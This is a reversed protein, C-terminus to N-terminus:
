AATRAAPMARALHLRAATLLEQCARYTPSRELDARAGSVLECRREGYTALGLEVLARVLRACLAPRRPYRGAGRLLMRLDEDSACGAARLTRYVETLSPRLDLEAQALALAFAVEQEGWALHAFGAAPAAHLLAVWAAAPPPDLAVLHGFPKALAPDAVLAPWAVLAAGHPGLVRDLAERRRPVDGCVVLVGEGSSLLDAAVGAFGEGRRDRLERCPAAAPSEWGREPEGVLREFEPWFREPEGLVACEGAPVPCLARLVVRAEVAGNWSNLELQVAADYPEDGCGAIAKAATRFAVGRARRGGSALTFRCHQEEEGMSRADAVRAAPVLLTPEPNGHGFPELRCLEEALELGLASGPVLADVWEEPILDRPTLSAATHRVFARRLADVEGPDIEFGAAARHGGFRRLHEACAALGAHLDYAQISRGSGHGSEDDLTILLTPRHHREVLRSAVIGIVGPHWGEGALVYASEGEHRRREAEAAFLIRTETDQRERNLLDLEDAVQAAREDDDTLLLELGADARQLRGAANIRPALRFALARADVEGPDLAAVKMLARLGPRRARSMVRLGERVLRRNESRLPVLDAVTALAVLDLDEPAGSPDLGASAHLAEALKHAVGTACLDPFPYGGLAPHVVPCPPLREGPRHHDTVVVELGLELAREVEAASTVACDVTVLLGAGDAALREVTARSLGYGDDLRSPLHWSVRAGLRELARVLVATAAVGDVDYDGHVVIPSRRRAHELIADCAARMDGLRFPDHWEEADLFRRAAAPTDYGRRVLIAATAPLLGLERAISDAAAVSYPTTSWRAVDAPM